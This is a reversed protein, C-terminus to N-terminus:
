GQAVFWLYDVSIFAFLASFPFLRLRLGTIPRTMAAASKATPYGARAASSSALDM